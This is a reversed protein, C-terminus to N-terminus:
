SFLFKFLFFLYVVGVNEVFCPQQLEKAMLSLSKFWLISVSFGLGVNKLLGLTQQFEKRM